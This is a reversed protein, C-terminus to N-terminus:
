RAGDRSLSGQTVWISVIARPYLSEFARVTDSVSKVMPLDEYAVAAASVTVRQALQPRNYLCITYYIHIHALGSDSDSDSRDRYELFALAGPRVQHHDARPRGGHRRSRPTRLGDKNKDRNKFRFQPVNFPM